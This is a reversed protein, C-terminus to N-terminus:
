CSAVPKQPMMSSFPWSHRGTLIGSCSLSSPLFTVMVMLSTSSPIDMKIHPVGTRITDKPVQLMSLKRFNDM